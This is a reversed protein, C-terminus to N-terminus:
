LLELDKEDIWGTEYIGNVDDECVKGQKPPNKKLRYQNRPPITNTKRRCCVWLRRRTPEGKSDRELLSYVATAADYAYAFQFLIITLDKRLSIGLPCHVQYFPDQGGRVGSFRRTGPVAQAASAFSGEGRPTRATAQVREINLAFLCVQCRRYRPTHVRKTSTKQSRSSSMKHFMRRILLKM